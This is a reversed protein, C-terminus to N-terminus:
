EAVYRWPAEPGARRWVTFFPIAAPSGPAPANLRITGITVALDGSSAVLVRRDPAWSVPSPGAPSGPPAVVQRIAEPGVAFGPGNGLNVADDAGHRVFAAGLGIEQADRSFALEAGAVERRLADLRAPDPDPEVVRAPLAPPMMATSVEGAPRVVRKYAAVRWGEPGRTWYSLYKQPSLTGDARRVNLYGFTFGHTGDASIGGRVPAWGARAGANGPTARLAERAAERGEAFLAPGPVQMMVEPAFMAALADAMETDAAAAAFARDAALLSEVAAGRDPPAASLAFHIPLLLLLMAQGARRRGSLAERLRSRVRGKERNM